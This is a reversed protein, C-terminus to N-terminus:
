IFGSSSFDTKYNSLLICSDVEISEYDMLLECFGSFKCLTLREANEVQVKGSEGVKTHLEEAFEKVSEPNCGSDWLLLVQQGPSVTLNEM